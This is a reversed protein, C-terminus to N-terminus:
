LLTIAVQALLGLLLWALDVRDSLVLTLPLQGVIVAALGFTVVKPAIRSILLNITAVLACSLGAYTLGDIATAPILGLARAGYLDVALLGSGLIALAEATGTLQHRSAPVAGSLAVSAFFAM